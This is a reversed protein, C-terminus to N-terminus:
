LIFKINITKLRQGACYFNTDNSKGIIFIKQGNVNLKFRELPCRERWELFNYVTSLYLLNFMHKHLKENYIIPNIYIVNKM